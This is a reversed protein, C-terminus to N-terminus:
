LLHCSHVNMLKQSGDIKRVMWFYRDVAASTAAAAADVIVFVAVIVSFFSRMVCEGYLLWVFGYM